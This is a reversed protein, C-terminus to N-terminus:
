IIVRLQNHKNKESIQIDINIEQIFFCIESIIFTYPFCTHFYIYLFKNNIIIVVINYWILVNKSTIFYENVAFM